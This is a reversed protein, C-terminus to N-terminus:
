HTDPILVACRFLRRTWCPISVLEKNSGTWHFPDLGDDVGANLREAEAANSENLTRGGRVDLVVPNAMPKWGNKYGTFEPETRPPAEERERYAGQTYRLTKPSTREPAPDPTWQHRPQFDNRQEHRAAAYRPDRSANFSRHRHMSPSDRSSHRQMPPSGEESSSRDSSAPAPGRHRSSRSHPLIGQPGQSSSNRINVQNFVSRRGNVAANSPQTNSSGTPLHKPSPSPSPSSSALKDAEALAQAQDRASRGAISMFRQPSTSQPTCNGASVKRSPSPTPAASSATTAPFPVASSAVHMSRQPSPTAKSVLVPDPVITSKDGGTYVDHKRAVAKDALDRLGNPSATSTPISISTTRATEVPTKAEAMHYASTNRELSSSGYSTQVTDETGSIAPQM